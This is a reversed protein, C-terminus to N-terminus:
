FVDGVRRQLEGRLDVRKEAVVAHPLAIKEVGYVEELKQLLKEPM